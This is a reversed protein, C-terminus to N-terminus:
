KKPPYYSWYVVVNPRAGDVPLPETALNSLVGLQQLFFIGQNTTLVPGSSIPIATQIVLAVAVETALEPVWSLTIVTKSCIKQTCNNFAFNYDPAVRVLGSPARREYDAKFLELLKLTLQEPLKFEFAQTPEGTKAYIALYQSLTQPGPAQGGHSFVLDLKLGPDDNRFHIASHRSIDGKTGTALYFAQLERGDPDVFRMPNNAVYGYRNSTVPWGVKEGITDPSLFRGTEPSYFRAHMYDLDDATSSPTDLLDREHSTFKLRQANQSASTAEKGYPFYTHFAVQAGAQNTVLRPSGLHDPHYHRVGDTPTLSAVLRGGAWINEKELTWVEPGGGPFSQKYERLPLGNPARLTVLKYNGNWSVSLLREADATYLYYWDEGGARFNDLRDLEDFRYAQGNWSRLNGSADYIGNLLRNNAASTPTNLVTDTVAGVPRTTTALLNGFGDLQYSQRAEGSTGNPSTFLRSEVLRSRTDYRFWSSGQQKLNGVGDFTLAGSAWSAAPGSAGLSSPRPLGHPDAGFTDLVGNSHALQHVQGNPLYSVAPVFGLVETLWGNTYKHFLDRDAVATTQAACPEFTCKPYTLKDLAGSPTYTFSQEFKAGAPAFADLRYEHTLKSLRGGLAVYEYGEIVRTTFAGGTAVAVRQWRESQLLRGRRFDTINNVTANDTGYSNKLLLEFTTPSVKEDVQMLREFSDLTRRLTIGGKEVETATGRPDFSRHLTTGSEPQTESTLFGRGDYAFSRVQTGEPMQQEVRRLRSGSDYLYTTTGDVVEPSGTPPQSPDDPAFPEKVRFLRGQRDYIETTTAEAEAPVGGTAQTAIRVTRFVKQIGAYQFDTAHAAGDPPVIRRPRGFPDHQQYAFWSPTAGAAKETSQQTIWGQPAYSKKRSSFGGSALRRQEEIVRGFADFFLKEENWLTFTPASGSRRTSAIQALQLNGQGDVGPVTYTVVLEAEGATQQHRLRGSADYGYTTAVGAVDRSSSTLGTNRDITRDVLFFPAGVHRSTALTGATYTHELHYIPSLAGTACTSSTPLAQKDAGFWREATRNGQSDLTYAVLGDSSTRSSRNALSRECLLAGTSTDFSAQVREPEVGPESEDVFRSAYTGLVWASSAPLMTFTHNATPLDSTPDIEYRGRTLNFTTTETRQNAAQFTGNTSRARQQGLGDHDVLRVEAVVPRANPYDPDGPPPTYLDDHFRTRHLVMRRNRNQLDSVEAAGGKRDWEFVVYTSRLPASDPQGPAYIRSSLFATQGNWTDTLVPDRTFPLGYELRSRGAENRVAVTYYSVVRNASPDTVTNKLDTSKTAGPPAPLLATAYNWTGRPAGTEDLMSRSAVGQIESRYTKANEIPFFYTQYTWSLYGLTPLRLQKLTGPQCIPATPQLYYSAAIPLDYKSGDPLSVSRLLPVRINGTAPDNDGCARALEHAEYAFSTIARTTGVAALDVSAVVQGLAGTNSVTTFNVRHTRNESDTITWRSAEYAVRVWNLAAGQGNVFRNRIERLKGDAHFTHITGDPFDIEHEGNALHRLRLYSGDRTYRVKQNSATDGVDETEGPNGPVLEHLTDYFVHESGDPSLYQWRFSNTLAPNTLQGLSIVWGLGANSRAAPKAQIRTNGNYTYESYDWNRGDYVLSLGYRLGGGLPYAAGLPITVQLNGNLRNVSDLEGAEFAQDTRAGRTLPPYVQALAPVSAVAVLCGVLFSSRLRAM